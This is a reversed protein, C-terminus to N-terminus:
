LLDQYIKELKDVNNQLALTPASKRASAAMKERLDRNGILKQVSARFKEENPPVVFGNEAPTVAEAAGMAGVVVCPLGSVLAESISVGQTESRSAFVFIDGAALFDPIQAADVFGTCIIENQVGLQAALNRLERLAPGGGILMLRVRKENQKGKPEGLLPAVARLLFDLSKERVIRGVYLLVLDDPAIKYRSRVTEGDGNAFKELQVGTPVVSVKMGPCFYKMRRAIAQSPAIVHRCFSCHRRVRKITYPRSYWLPLPAYHLYRHYLTHFTFVAPVGYKRAWRAGITGITFPSHTHVLDFKQAAFFQEQARLLPMIYPSSLIPLALAFDKARFWQMAPFRVIIEGSNDDQHGRYRPAFIIVEHGRRRLEEATTSASVAVGNCTPKYADCFFAIKM